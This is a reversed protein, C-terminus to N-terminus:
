ARARPRPASTSGADRARRRDRRARHRPPRRRDRRCRTAAAHRRRRRDRARRPARCSPARGTASPLLRRCRGVPREEGHRPLGADFSDDVHRRVARARVM